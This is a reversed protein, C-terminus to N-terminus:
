PARRSSLESVEAEIRPLEAITLGEHAYQIKGQRDIVYAAPFDSPAYLRAVSATADHLLSIRWSRRSRTVREVDSINRDIAVAVVVTDTTSSRTAIQNLGALEEACDWAAWIHLVVVRGRLSSLKVRGGELTPATFDPAM